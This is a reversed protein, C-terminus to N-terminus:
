RVLQKEGIAWLAKRKPDYLVGHAKALSIM